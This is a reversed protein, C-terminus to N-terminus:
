LFWAFICQLVALLHSLSLPMAFVAIALMFRECLHQLIVALWGDVVDAALSGGFMKKPRADTSNSFIDPTHVDLKIM